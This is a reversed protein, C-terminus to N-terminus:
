LVNYRLPPKPHCAVDDPNWRSSWGITSHWPSRTSTAPFSTPWCLCPPGCEFFVKHVSSDIPVADPSHSCVPVSPSSKSGMTRVLVPPDLYTSLLHLGVVVDLHCVATPLFVTISAFKKWPLLFRHWDTDRTHWTVNASPDRNEVTSFTAWTDRALPCRNRVLLMAQWGTSGSSSVVDCWLVGSDSEARPRASSAGSSVM